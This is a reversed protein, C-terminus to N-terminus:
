TVCSPGSSGLPTRARGVGPKPIKPRRRWLYVFPQLADALLRYTAWRRAAAFLPELPRLRKRLQMSLVPARHHRAGPVTDDLSPHLRLDVHAAGMDVLDGLMSREVPGAMHDVAGQLAQDCLVRVPQEFAALGHGSKTMLVPVGSRICGVMKHAWHALPGAVMRHHRVDPSRITETMQEIWVAEAADQGYDRHTQHIHSCRMHITLLGPLEADEAAGHGPGQSEVSVREIIWCNKYSLAGTEADIIPYKSPTVFAARVGPRGAVSILLGLRRALHELVHGVGLWSGTRRAIREALAWWMASETDFRVTVAWHSDLPSSYRWDQLPWDRTGAFRRLHAQVADLVSLPTCGLAACRRKDLLCYLM